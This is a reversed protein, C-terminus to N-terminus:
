SRPRCMARRRAATSVYVDGTGAARVAQDRPHPGRSGCPRTATSSGRIRACGPPTGAPRRPSRASTRRAPGRGARRAGAACRRTRPSGRSGAWGASRGAARAPSPRGAPQRRQRGPVAVEVVGVHDVVVRHQAYATRADVGLVGRGDAHGRGLRDRQQAGGLGVGHEARSVAAASAPNRTAIPARTDSTQASSTVSRPWSLPWRVTRSRIFPPLVRVRAIGGASARAARRATAAPRVPPGSNRSRRRHASRGACPRGTRGAPRSRAGPM